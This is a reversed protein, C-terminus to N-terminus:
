GARVQKLKKIARHLLLAVAERSRGMREAIEATSLGEMKAHVIVARYDEPLSDLARILAQLGEEQALLRSPTMSDVPEPAGPQSPSGLPLVAAADRKQRSFHRAADATVHDLIRSLWRLFSGPNRYEFRDIQVFAKLLTEQLIDDVEVLGRLQPGLRYHALVALRRRHRDFLVSIAERDGEKIREILNFTSTPQEM